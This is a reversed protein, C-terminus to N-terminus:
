ITVMPTVLSCLITAHCSIHDALSLSSNPSLYPGFRCRSLHLYHFTLFSCWTYFSSISFFHDLWFPPPFIGMQIYLTHVTSDISKFHCTVHSSPRVVHIDNKFWFMDTLKLPSASIFSPSPSLFSILSTFFPKM